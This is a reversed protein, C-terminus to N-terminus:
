LWFLDVTRAKSENLFIMYNISVEHSGQQYPRISGLFTDYSYGVRINNTLVTKAQFSIGNQGSM